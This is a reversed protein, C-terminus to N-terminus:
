TQKNTSFESCFTVIVPFHDSSVSKTKSIPRVPAYKMEREIEIKEIFKKSALVLDLWSM